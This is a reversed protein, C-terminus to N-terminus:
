HRTVVTGLKAKIRSLEEATLQRTATLIGGYVLAGVLTGVIMSPLDIGSTGFAALAGSMGAAAVLASLFTVLLPRLRVGVLERCIRFHAAVYLAYAVDTGIAAGVIGITPLLALDIVVNVLLTAIAIPIRRRAAGLYNVSGALLPSIGTLFVWPALARLVDASEEYEAGLVMETIPEAWVIIPALIVGQILLLYRLTRELTEDRPGDSRRSLRPAVGSRAAAGIYGFLVLMKMPAAFIGASTIGLIAGILLVDIHSYLAFAGDVIVLASGYTAIRRVYGQGRLRPWVPRGLARGILALGLVAAFTYAGARGAMAGAAGTGLLVLLISAGAEVASEAGVLRLYGSVRGTAEFFSAAFGMLSQGFVAVAVIRLPSALSPSDYAEAIPGAAAMLAATFIGSVLVKLRVSDRVIATVTSGDGRVEAIFRAASQSIGLDSPILVLGAVGIALSFLGYQTPGLARVLFVILTATFGASVLQVALAFVTNRGMGDPADRPAKPAADSPDQPSNLAFAGSGSRM